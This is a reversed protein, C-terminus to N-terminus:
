AAQKSLTDALGSILNGAMRLRRALPLDPFIRGVAAEMSAVRQVRGQPACVSIYLEGEHVEARITDATNELTLTTTMTDEIFDDGDDPYRGDRDPLFDPDDGSNDDQLYSESMPILKAEPSPPPRSRSKSSELSLEDM